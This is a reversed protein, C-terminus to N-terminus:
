LVVAILTDWGLSHPHPVTRKGPFTETLEELKKIDSLDFRRWQPIGGRQSGGSLQYCLLQKRGNAYGFVHPECTRVNGEYTFRLLHKTSLASLIISDM